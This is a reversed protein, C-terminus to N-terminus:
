KPGVFPLSDGSEVSSAFSEKKAGKKEKQQTKQHKAATKSDSKVINICM